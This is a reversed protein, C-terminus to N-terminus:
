DNTFKFQSRTVSYNLIIITSGGVVLLTNTWCTWWTWITCYCAIEDTKRFYHRVEGMVMELAHYIKMEPAAPWLDNQLFGLHSSFRFNAGRNNALSIISIVALDMAYLAWMTDPCKSKPKSTSWLLHVPGYLDGFLNALIINATNFCM